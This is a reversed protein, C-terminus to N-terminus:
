KRSRPKEGGLRIVLLIKASVGLLSVTLDNDAGFQGLKALAKGAQDLRILSRACTECSAIANGSTRRTIPGEYVHLVANAIRNQVYHATESRYYNSAGGYVLLAPIDIQALTARYDAETLSEWCAILPAPDQEKLWQRARELGRTNEDYKKRARDNLGMAGLRLVSEAFDRRLDKLLTMSRERDFDGYIGNLWGADTLLKPSQDIFCLKRLRHCGYDEIYQWLTLAGLSHGVAILDDLQYHDILNRFIERWASCLQCPTERSAIDVTAAPTGDTFRHQPTLPDLFPSWEQPEGDLRAAHHDPFRSRFGPPLNKEM